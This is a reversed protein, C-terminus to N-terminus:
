GTKAQGRFARRFRGWLSKPETTKAEMELARAQAEAVAKAELELAKVKAEALAKAESELVKARAEALTEANEALARQYQSLQAELAFRAREAIDVRRREQDLQEGMRNLQGGALELAALHAALPVSDSSPQSQRAQDKTTEAPGSSPTKLQELTDSRPTGPSEQGTQVPGLMDLYPGLAARPIRKGFPTEVTALKGKLVHRQITKVSIEALDAAEAYTLFEM